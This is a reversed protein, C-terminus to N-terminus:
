AIFHFLLFFLLFGIAWVGFFFLVQGEPGEVRFRNPSWIQTHDTEITKQNTPATSYTAEKKQSLPRKDSQWDRRTNRRGRKVLYLSRYIIGRFWLAV